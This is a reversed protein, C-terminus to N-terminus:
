PIRKPKYGLRQFDSRYARALAKISSPDLDERRYHKDSRNLHPLDTDLRQEYSLLSLLTNVDAGFREFRGVFQPQIAKLRKMQPTFGSIGRYSRHSVLREVVNPLSPRADLLWLRFEVMASPDSWHRYRRELRVAMDVNYNCASIFRDIPHRVFTFRLWQQWDQPLGRKSHHSHRHPCGLLSEITQGGTKPIHLFLARRDPILLM